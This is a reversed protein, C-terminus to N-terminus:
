KNIISIIYNDTSSDQQSSISKSLKTKKGRLIDYMTQYGFSQSRKRSFYKKINQFVEECNNKYIEYYRKNKFFSLLFFLFKDDRSMEYDDPDKLIQFKTKDNIIPPKNERHDFRWSFFQQVHLLEYASWINDLGYKKERGDNVFWIVDIEDNDMSKECLFMQTDGDKFLAYYNFNVYSEDLVPFFNIKVKENMTVVGSTDYIVLIDNLPIYVNGVLHVKQQSTNYTIIKGTAYVNSISSSTNSSFTNSSSTNHSETSYIVDYNNNKTCTPLIYDVTTVTKFDTRYLNKMVNPNSNDVNSSIYNDLVLPTRKATFSVNYTGGENDSQNTTYGIRGIFSSTYDTSPVLNGDYERYKVYVPIDYAVGDNVFWIVDIQNEESKTERLFLQTDGDEFLSYYKFNLLDYSVPFFNIKFKENMTVVGSTDYIVLIDNEPIDVGNDEPIEVNPELHVKRESTNYTFIKGTAYVNSISSSTNSSIINQSETNDRKIYIVHYNNNNNACFSLIDHVTTVTKFDTIDLNKMVNLKSRINSFYDTKVPFKVNYTQNNDDVPTAYGIRGTFSSTYDKSPVLKGDSERYEVYVPIDEQM